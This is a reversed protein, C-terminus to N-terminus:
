GWLSFHCVKFRLPVDACPYFALTQLQNYLVASSQTTKPKLSNPIIQFSTRPRFNQIGGVWVNVVSDHGKHQWPRNCVLHQMLALLFASVAWSILFYTVPYLHLVWSHKTCQQLSYQLMIHCCFVHVFPAIELLKKKWRRQGHCNDDSM